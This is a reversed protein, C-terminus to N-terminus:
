YLRNNPMVEIGVIRLLIMRLCVSVCSLSQNNFYTLGYSFVAYWMVDGGNDCLACVDLDDKENSEDIMDSDNRVVTLGPQAM